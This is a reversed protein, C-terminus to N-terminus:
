QRVDLTFSGNHSMWMTANRQKSHTATRCCWVACRILFQTKYIYTSTQQKGHRDIDHMGSHQKLTNWWLHRSSCTIITNKNANSTATNTYTRCHIDPTTHSITLEVYWEPTSYLWNPCTRSLQDSVDCSNDTQGHLQCYKVSSHIRPTLVVNYWALYGNYVYSGRTRRHFLHLKLM